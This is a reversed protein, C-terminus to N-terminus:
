SCGMKISKIYRKSNERIKLAKALGSWPIARYISGLESAQFSQWYLSFEKQPSIFNIEQSTEYIRRIKRM